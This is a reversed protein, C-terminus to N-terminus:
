RYFRTVDTVVGHLESNQRPKPDSVPKIDWTDVILARALQRLHAQSIPEEGAEYHHIASAPVGSRAALDRVKMKKRRRIEWLNEPM